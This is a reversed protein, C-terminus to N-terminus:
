PKFGMGMRVRHAHVAFGGSGFPYLFHFVWGYPDSNQQQPYQNAKHGDMEAPYALSIVCPLIADGEGIPDHGGYSYGDGQQEQDRQQNARQPPGNTPGRALWGHDAEAFVIRVGCLPQAAFSM